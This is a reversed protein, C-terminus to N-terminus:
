GKAGASGSADQAPRTQVLVNAVMVLGGGVLLGWTARENAYSIGAAASILAPLFLVLVSAFVPEICYILGAETATIRPQWKNMIFFASITCFVTLALTLGVWAASHWPVWLARANPATSAALATFAVAQVAFMVLTVPAPRNGAFGVDALLLIQGMYFLSCLLTEWEGRGFRLTRWDFHGLIAVGALVLGCCTWIVAGPNRRRRVAVWIPILIASFQTLFASTSADTFQMGDTQLLTGATAFAGIGLGQITERPRPRAGRRGCIALMFAAGLAFRPMLASAAVFWSGAHPLLARNLSVISKIVPFSLGWYLTALVLMLIALGRRPNPPATM